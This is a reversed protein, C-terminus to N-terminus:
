TIEIDIDSVMAVGPGQIQRQYIRFIVQNYREMFLKHAAYIPCTTMVCNYTCRGGLLLSVVSLVDSADNPSTFFKASIM